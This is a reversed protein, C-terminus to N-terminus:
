PPNPKPRSQRAANIHAM